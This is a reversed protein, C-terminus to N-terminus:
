FERDSAGTETKTALSCAKAVFDKAGSNPSWIMNAAAPAVSNVAGSVLTGLTVTFTAGSRTLTGNLTAGGNPVYNGRTDVGNGVALPVQPYPDATNYFLVRDGQNNQTFVVYLPQSGTGDWGAFMSTPDIEESYTLTITDGAQVIGPSGGGDATQVDAASPVFNDIRQNAVTTSPATNLAVDSAFTRLDYLGDSLLTTNASCTTFPTASDTCLDTWSSGGPTTYQVKTNLVGSGSDSATFSFAYATGSVTGSPPTLTTTPLVNDVRRNAILSTTFTNNAVDAIVARVDYLQSTVVTTDWNCGWTAAPAVCATSWSNTGAPSYQYTVSAVGSQGDTPSSALAKTGRINAGPDTMTGSPNTNDARRGTITASYAFNGAADTVKARFDYDVNDTMATTNFNCSYTPGTSGTCATSSWTGSAATKYEYAVTAVGAGGTDSASQSQLTITGRSWQAPSTMTGSPATNDIVQNTVTASIRTYGSNNTAKARLDYVGNGSTSWNCGWAAANATCATTWTNTGTPSKEYVVQTITGGSTETVTASLPVSGSRPTVLDTVSVHVGFDNAATLNRAWSSSSATYTAGSMTTASAAVLLLAIGARRLWIV